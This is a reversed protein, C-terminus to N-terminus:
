CHAMHEALSELEKRTASGKSELMTITDMLKDIKSQPLSLNMEVSDALIGLFKM